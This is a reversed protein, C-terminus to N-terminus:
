GNRIFERAARAVIWFGLAVVGIFGYILLVIVGLPLAQLRTAGLSMLADLIIFGGTMTLIGNYLKALPRALRASERGHTSREINLAALLGFVWAGVVLFINIPLVLFGSPGSTLVETDSTSNTAALYIYFMALLLVPPGVTVLKGRVSMAAQATVALHLTGTRLWMFGLFPFIIIVYYNVQTLLTALGPIDTFFPKIASMLSSLILGWALFWVGKAMRGYTRRGEEPALRKAYRDLELWAYYGFWWALMLLGIITLGLVVLVAMSLNYPNGGSSRPATITLGLYVTTAVAVSGLRWWQGGTLSM